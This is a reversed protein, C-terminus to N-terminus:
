YRTIAPGDEGPTATFPRANIGAGEVNYLRQPDCSFSLGGTSLRESEIEQWGDVTQVFVTYEEDPEFEGLDCSKELEVTFAADGPDKYPSNDLFRINGDTITLLRDTSNEATVLLVFPLRRGVDKFVVNRGEIKSRAVLRWEEANWVNLGAKEGTVGEDLEVAVEVVETNAATIDELKDWTKLYVKVAKGGNGNKGGDISPIVTWAHNGNGRGWWPTFAQAAPLGVARLMCNEVNSCDECRGEHVALATLMGFDEWTTDGYYQFFDYTAGRALEIARNADDKTLDKLEPALATFFHRRWRQLPEGTGRPSLVQQLFDEDKCECGWPFDVRAKTAYYVNEYFTRADMAQLDEISGDDDERWFAMADLRSILWVGAWLNEAAHDSKGLASLAVALERGAGKANKMNERARKLTEDDLKHKEDLAGIAQELVDSPKPLKALRAAALEASEPATFGDASYLRRLVREREPTLKRDNRKNGDRFVISRLEGSPTTVIVHLKNNAFNELQGREWENERVHKLIAEPVSLVEVSDTIRQDEPDVDDFYKSAIYERVKLPLVGKEPVQEVDNAHSPAVALLLVFAVGVFRLPTRM